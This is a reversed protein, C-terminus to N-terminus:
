RGGVKLERSQCSGSVLGVSTRQGPCHLHGYPSFSYLLEGSLLDLGVHCGTFSYFSFPPLVWFYFTLSGGVFDWKVGWDKEKLLWISVSSHCKIAIGLVLGHYQIFPKLSQHIMRATRPPLPNLPKQCEFPVHPIYLQPRHQHERGQCCEALVQHYLYWGPRGNWPYPTNTLVSCYPTFLM